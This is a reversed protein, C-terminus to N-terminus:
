SRGPLSLHIEKCGDATAPPVPPHFIAHAIHDPQPVLSRQLQHRTGLNNQTHTHRFLILLSVYFPNGWVLRYIMGPVRFPKKKKKKRQLTQNRAVLAKGSESTNILYLRQNFLPPLSPFSWGQKWHRADLFILQPFKNFSQAGKLKERPAGGGPGGAPGLTLSCLQSLRPVRDLKELSLLAM